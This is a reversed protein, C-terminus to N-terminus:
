RERSRWAMVDKTPVVGERMVTALSTSSLGLQVLTSPAGGKCEGALVANMPLGVSKAALFVDSSVAQGALNASTATIPGVCETLKKALPHSLIRIAVANGGLRQDQENIAEMLLTISGPAFSDLFEQAHEPVKVLQRVDDLSAVGLSVPKSADRMKTKFLNNLGEKTPLCALGPQTSTPFVVVEGSELRSILHASIEMM